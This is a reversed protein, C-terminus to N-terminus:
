RQMLSDDKAPDRDIYDVSLVISYQAMDLVEKDWRDTFLLEIDNLQMDTVTVRDSSTTSSYYEMDGPFGTAPLVTLLSGDQLGYSGVKSQQFGSAHNCYVNVFDLGTFGFNIPILAQSNGGITGADISSAGLYSKVFGNPQLDSLVVRAAGSGSNHLWLNLGSARTLPNGYGLAAYQTALTTQYTTTQTYWTSLTTGQLDFNLDFRLSGTTAAAATAANKGTGPVASYYLGANLSNLFNNLFATLAVGGTGDYSTNLASPCVPFLIGDQYFGGTIPQSNLTVSYNTTVGGVTVAM